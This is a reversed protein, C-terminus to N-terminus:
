NPYISLQIFSAIIRAAASAYALLKNTLDGFLVVHLKIGIKYSNLQSYFSSKKIINFIKVKQSASYM